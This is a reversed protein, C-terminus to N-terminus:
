ATVAKLTRILSRKRAEVEATSLGLSISARHESHGSLYLSEFICRLDKPLRESADLLQITKAEMISM